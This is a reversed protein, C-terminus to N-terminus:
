RLMILELDVKQVGQPNYKDVSSVICVHGDLYVLERFDIMARIDYRSLTLTAGLIRGALMATFWREWYQAVLGLSSAGPTHENTPPIANFTLQDVQRANPDFFYARIYQNNATYIGGGYQIPSGVGAWMPSGTFGIPGSCGGGTPISTFNIALYATPSPITSLKDIRVIRPAYEGTIYKATPGTGLQAVDQIITPIYFNPHLAADWALSRTPALPSADTDTTDNTFQNDNVRDHETGLNFGESNLVEELFIDDSDEAYYWNLRAGFEASWLKQSIPTKRDIATSIDKDNEFYFDDFPEIYVIRDVEDTYCYLNFMAVLSKLLEAVTIDPLNPRVDYIAGEIQGVTVSLKGVTTETVTLTLTPGASIAKTCSIRVNFFDGNNAAQLVILDAKFTQTTNLDTAKLTFEQNVLATVNNLYIAAFVKVITNSPTSTGSFNLEFTSKFSVAYTVPSANSYSSQNAIQVDVAANVSSYNNLIIDTFYYNLDFQVGFGPPGPFTTHTFPANNVVTAIAQSVFTERTHLLALNRGKGVTEFFRSRMRFGEQEFHAYLIAPIFYAPRINKLDILPQNAGDLKITDGGYQVPPYTAVQFERRMQDATLTSLNDFTQIVYGDFENLALDYECIDFTRIWRNNRWDGPVQDVDFLKRNQFAAGWAMNGGLLQIQYEKASWSLLACRGSFFIAGNNEIQAAGYKKPDIQNQVPTLSVDLNWVSGFIANNRPTAPLKVTFSSAGMVSGTEQASAIAYNFAVGLGNPSLDCIQDNLILTLM